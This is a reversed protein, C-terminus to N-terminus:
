CFLFSLRSIFLLGSYSGSHERIAVKGRYSRLGQASPLSLADLACGCEPCSQFKEPEHNHSSPASLETFCCTSNQADQGQPWLVSLMLGERLSISWKSM